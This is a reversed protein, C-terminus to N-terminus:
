QYSISFAGVGDFTNSATAYIKFQTIEASLPKQGTGVITQYASGYLTHSLVWMNTAAEKLTLIIQGTLLLGDDGLKIHFAGYSNGGSPNSGSIIKMSQSTYSSTEIGGADGLQIEIDGTSNLSVKSLNIFIVKVGSPIGSFTVSTGSAIAQNASLTFGAAAADEFLCVAGAGASTLVQGDNGTAVAVPNGSTDFSILNGDTGAALKALTVADNAIDGTNVTTLSTRGTLFSM